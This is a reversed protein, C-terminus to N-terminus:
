SIPPVLFAPCSLGVAFKLNVTRHKREQSHAECRSPPEFGRRGSAVQPRRVTHGAGANGVSKTV